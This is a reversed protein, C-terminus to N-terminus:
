RVLGGEKNGVEQPLSCTRFFIDMMERFLDGNLHQVVFRAVDTVLAEGSEAAVSGEGTESSIAVAAAGAAGCVAAAAAPMAPSAAPQSDEQKTETQIRVTPM